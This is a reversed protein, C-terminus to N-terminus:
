SVRGGEHRVGHHVKSRGEVIWVTEFVESLSLVFLVVRVVKLLGLVVIDIQFLFLLLSVVNLVVVAGLCSTWMRGWGVVVFKERSGGAERWRAM